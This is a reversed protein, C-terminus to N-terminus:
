LATGDADVGFQRQSAKFPADEHKRRDLERVTM